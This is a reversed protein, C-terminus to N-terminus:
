FFISYHPLLLHFIVVCCVLALVLSVFERMEFEVESNPGPTCEERKEVPTYFRTGAEKKDKKDKGSGVGSLLDDPLSDGLYFKLATDQEEGAKLIIIKQRTSERLMPKFIKYLVNIWTPANIILTKFSRGPYNSSMMAVFRKGFDIYESNSMQRFSSGRMDLVNTMIGTPSPEVINWCYQIIYVYHLLLDDITANNMRMLEFDVHAPRQVFIINGNPDRGAFYHPAMQKCVDFKPHPRELLTDVNYEERWALHAEFAEKAGERDGKKMELFRTPIGDPDEASGDDPTTATFTLNRPQSGEEAEEGTMEPTTEDSVDKDDAIVAQVEEQEEVTSGGRINNVLSSSIFPLSLKRSNHWGGSIRFVDHATHANAFTALNNLNCCNIILIVTVALLYSGMSSSTLSMM